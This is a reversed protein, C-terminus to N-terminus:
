TYPPRVVGPEAYKDFCIILSGIRRLCGSLDIQRAAINGGEGRVMWDWGM